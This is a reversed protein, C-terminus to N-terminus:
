ALPKGMGKDRWAIMLRCILLQLTMARQLDMGWPISSMLMTRSAHMVRMQRGLLEKLNLSMKLVMRIRGRKLVMVPAMVPQMQRGRAMSAPAQMVAVMTKQLRQWIVTRSGAQEGPHHWRRKKRRRWPKWLAMAMCWGLMMAAKVQLLMEMLQPLLLRWSPQKHRLLVARPPTPWGTGRARRSGSSRRKRNQRAM